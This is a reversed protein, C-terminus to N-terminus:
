ILAFLRNEHLKEMFFRSRNIIESRDRSGVFQKAAYQKRLEEFMLLIQSGRMM